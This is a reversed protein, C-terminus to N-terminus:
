DWRRWEPCSGNHGEVLLCRPLPYPDAANFNDPHAENHRCDHRKCLM